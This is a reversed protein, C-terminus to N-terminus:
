AAKKKTRFRFVWNENKLFESGLFRWFSLKELFVWNQFLTNIVWLWLEPKKKTCFRFVWNQNKLFESGLFRWFSLKQWFVWNWFLPNIFIKVLFQEFICNWVNKAWFDEFKSFVRNWFPLFETKWFNKFCLYLSTRVFSAQVIVQHFFSIKGRYESRCYTTPICGFLEIVKKLKLTQFTM